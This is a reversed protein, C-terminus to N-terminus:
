RCRAGGGARPIACWAQQITRYDIVMIAEQQLIERAEPSTLFEYDTRRVRWRWSRDHSEESGLGPHVPWKSLGPPLDRLLRAHRAAKGDIGLSFSDLFEHDTVPLGQWRLKRRGPDLWVRVALGYEGALAVTLDLIDERGGDALCHWDLHTPTLGGGAV